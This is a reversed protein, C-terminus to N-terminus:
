APDATWREINQEYMEQLIDEVGYRLDWGAYDAKFPALDSIWWRHDGIRPEQGMEWSLERDAIQECVEIAELMSCNSFRGGGINYVAAPRPSNHFAAFAAILDASHINDRVQKGAYGFVTYPTGTATCKMLYALFGHLKAGAHQPGTLCGGRFCVTPMEFYHGYEQVLLDAAAKSVGFLSHTSADISMLTDIGRYYHHNEPLELRMDLERLPLRNPTDGYVKNTSCFIFTADPAHARASELLNLTGNANVSFDTQPESAAWDHSPQAATHIVLEIGDAHERFIRDIADADRIDTYEWRFEPHEAVLRETVRSTSSEPGFFRARMDNEVGVIDFGEAIFHEVAESGILGGAGTIIAVPM